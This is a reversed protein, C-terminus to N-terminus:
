NVRDIGVDRLAALNIKVGNSATFIDKEDPIEADDQGTVNFFSAYAKPLKHWSKGLQQAKMMEPTTIFHENAKVEATAAVYAENAQIAAVLLDRNRPDTLDAMSAKDNTTSALGM